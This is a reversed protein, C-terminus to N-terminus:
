KIGTFLRKWRVGAYPDRSFWVMSAKGVIHDEPVFGWVRSDVSNYRNDGMMWYYNMEFTYTMAKKGDILITGNKKVELTHREYATIIRRYWALNNKTLKIKMGKKPVQFKGFDSMTNEVFPDKPYRNMNDIYDGYTMKYAPDSSKRPIRFQQVKAKPHKAKIRKLQYETALLVYVFKSEPYLPKEIEKPDALRYDDRKLEMGIKEMFVGDLKSDTYVYYKLNQNPFIPAAIGNVFLKSDVVELWDGPVGVCRKIYNERKDVPRPILGYHEIVPPMNADSRNTAFGSSLYARAKGKWVEITEIYKKNFYNQALNGAESVPIKLSDPLKSNVKTISDSYFTQYRSIESNNKPDNRYINYAEFLLIDHYDHGMLGTPMRPDYVATDGSPYNFVVVDYREIQSFGPLRVYDSTEWGVYSKINVWPITNHVLPYSLPTVPVKPGYALKNVFLFDGVLLTKEMSGTPIQFPEFVYVRIISAAVLAFLIADGWEKVKSKKGPEHRTVASIGLAIVHGLVPLCLFLVLHDGWERRGMEGTNAWNTEPLMKDKSQAIKYMIIYPFFIGQLTDVLSFYGFRRIYSVNATSWMVLHIAPFILLLCWFPKKSGIKFAVYYNYIPVLAEWSKRDAQEFSKWWMALYPHALLFLYFYLINM